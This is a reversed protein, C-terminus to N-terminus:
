GATTILYLIYTGLTFSASLSMLLSSFELSPPFMCFYQTFYPSQISASTLCVLFIFFFYDCVLFPQLPFRFSVFIVLFFSGWLYLRSFPRGPTVLEPLSLFSLRAPVSFVCVCVLFWSFRFLGHSFCSVYIDRLMRSTLM